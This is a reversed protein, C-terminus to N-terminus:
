LQELPVEILPISVAEAARFTELSVDLRDQAFRVPVDFLFGATIQAGTAPAIAFRVIRAEDNWSWGSNIESGNVAVRVTGAVPKLIRRPPAGTGDGYDKILPFDTRAGDGSGLLQDLASVPADGTTSRHDLPDRFRFGYARGLRAHFFRIVAQLDAESRVGLGVDFRMRGQSWNALRQEHGSATVIIDTSFEPGGSSGYAVELPFSVDHFGSMPVEEILQAFSFGDRCVQPYAWVFIEGYGQSRADRIAEAIPRWQHRDAPDLVFGSFYHSAAVPYGLTSLATALGSRHLGWQEETVHEYDELQLIDFAPSSWAAPLNLRAPLTSLPDTIQPTYLLILVITGPATSRVHDRLAFTAAALKGACWDVYALQAATPTATFSTLAPPVALGTAATYAAATAPDYIHPKRGSGLGTWWWPEGIQFWRESSGAPYLAMFAAAVGKLYDVGAASCPSILTSPPSWGTLAPNGAHDLQRWALPAHADFLEFSLSLIVKFGLASARALFDTHWATCAADLLAGTDAVIWRAEGSDRRLRFYHSMGVYHDIWQRYGLQICNRLIREPTQNYQDDYGGAMRLAHPPTMPDGIALIAGAGDTRLDSITVQGLKPASALPTTSGAAFGPPVMSIFLRDIDGAWVPDAEGPLLFGGDLDDFDLSIVADTPSGVAYNWLRVYWTRPTGTSTRGEITLTPGNVADLGLVDGSSQWRFQWSLGRYDRATAYRTLPHDLTDVSDWILGALNGAEYFSLKVQLSDPGTTIVSAMMPRPFNVTWYRPDFRAITDTRLQDRTSALWHFDTAGTM